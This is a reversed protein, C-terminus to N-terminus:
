RTPLYNGGGFTLFDLEENAPAKDVLPDYDRQKKQYDEGTVAARRRKMDTLETGTDMLSTLAGMTGRREDEEARMGYDFAHVQYGFAKRSANIDIMLKDMETMNESSKAVAAGTGAGVVVGQGTQSASLSGAIRRAKLDEVAEQSKGAQIAYNSQMQEVSANYRALRANTQGAEYSGYAKTAGGLATMYMSADDGM